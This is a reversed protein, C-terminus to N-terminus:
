ARVIAQPKPAVATIEKDAMLRFESKKGDLSLYLRAGAYTPFMVWDGDKCWPSGFSKDKYAEPGLKMVCGIVTAYQEQRRIQDPLVLGSGGLKEKVDPIFVLINWGCPEPLDDVTSITEASEFDLEIKM